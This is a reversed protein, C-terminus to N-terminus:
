NYATELVLIQEMLPLLTVKAWIRTKKRKKEKKKKSLCSNECFSNISTFGM